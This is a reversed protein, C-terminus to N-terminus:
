INDLAALRIDDVDDLEAMMAEHYGTIGLQHQQATRISKVTVEMPLVAAHGYVLSFPTSGTSGLPSMRYAWLAQYCNM